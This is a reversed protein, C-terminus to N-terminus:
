FYTINISIDADEPLTFTFYKARFGLDPYPSYPDIIDRNNSECAPIWGDAIRNGPIITQLCETNGIDNYEISFTFSTNYSNTAELTYTGAALYTELVGGSVQKIPTGSTTNGEILYMVASYSNSLTFKVDAERDLTFTYFKAPYPLPNYPDYYNTRHTSECSLHWSDSISEGINVTKQCAEDANATLSFALTLFVVTIVSRITKM